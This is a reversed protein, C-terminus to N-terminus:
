DSNAFGFTKKKGTRPIKSYRVEIRPQPTNIRTKVYDGSLSLLNQFFHRELNRVCMFCRKRQLCVCNNHLASLAYLMLALSLMDLTRFIFHFLCM